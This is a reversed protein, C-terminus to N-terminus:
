EAPAAGAAVEAEQAEDLLSEILATRQAITMEAPLLLTDNLIEDGERVVGGISIEYHKKLEYAVECLEGHQMCVFLEARGSDASSFTAHDNDDHEVCLVCGVPEKRWLRGKWLYVAEPEIRWCSTPVGDLEIIKRLRSRPYSAPAAEDAGIAEDNTVCAAVLRPYPRPHERTETENSASM